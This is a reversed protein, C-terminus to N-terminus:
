NMNCSLLSKISFLIINCDYDVQDCIISNWIIVDNYKVSIRLATTKSKALHSKYCQRTPYPYVNVTRNFMYSFISPLEIKYYKFMFMIISYKYIQHFKLIHLKTFIPDTHAKYISYSIIRVIRKQLKILSLLNTQSAKGGM